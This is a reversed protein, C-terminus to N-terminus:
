PPPNSFSETRIRFGVLLRLIWHYGAGMLVELDIQLSSTPSFPRLFHFIESSSKIKLGSIASNQSRQQKRTCNCHHLQKVLRPFLSALPQLRPLPRIKLKKRKPVLQFLILLFFHFFINCLTRSPIVHVFQLESVM